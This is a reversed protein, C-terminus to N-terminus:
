PRLRAGTSPCRGMVPERRYGIGVSMNRQLALSLLQRHKASEDLRGPDGGGPAVPGDEGLHFAAGDHVGPVFEVLAVDGGPARGAAVVVVRPGLRHRDVAPPRIRAPEAPEVGETEGPGCRPHRGADLM